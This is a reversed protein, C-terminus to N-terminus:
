CATNRPWLVSAIMEKTSTKGVSGTIGVVKIDLSRRYFAAIKKMAEETSTLWFIRDQRISSGSSPSCPWRERKLFRRFSILTRGRAAGRIPIFM